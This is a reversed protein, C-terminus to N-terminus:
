LPTADTVGIQRGHGRFEAVVDGGRRVTVDCDVARGSRRRTTAEAVLDDDLLAPRLFTIDAAATVVAPGFSNVACAFATDALSFVLGGHVICHGNVMDPRVRMRALAVGQGAALVEIGLMASTRDEALMRRVSPAVEGGAHTGATM